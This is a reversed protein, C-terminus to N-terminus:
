RPSREYFRDIMENLDVLREESITENKQVRLIMNFLARLDGVPINSKGALSEIFDQNINHTKLFYRARIYELFVKIKKEAINKHNQSQFYLGGITRVFDVTLNAHPKVIPIIRQKRKREVLIYLLMAAVILYWAWALEPEGLIFSLDGSGSGNNMALARQYDVKYYEDWLIDTGEPIHSFVKSIFDHHNEYLLHYNTLLYPSSCLIFSGTGHPIRIVNAFGQNNTALVETTNDDYENFFGKTNNAYFNYGITNQLASDSFNALTSDQSEAQEQKLDFSFSFTENLFHLSDKLSRSFNEAAILVHNGKHVFKLLAGTDWKDIEFNNNIVIYAKKSLFTSDVAQYATKQILRIESEPFIDILLDHVLKTGYPQDHFSSFSSAWSTKNSEAPKSTQVVFYLVLLLGVFVLYIITSRKM